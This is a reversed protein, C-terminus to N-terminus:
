YFRGVIRAEPTTLNRRAQRLMGMVGFVKQVERSFDREFGLLQIPFVSFQQM